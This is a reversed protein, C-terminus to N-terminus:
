KGSINSFLIELILVRIEKCFSLQSIFCLPLFYNLCLVVPHHCISCGPVDCRAQVQHLFLYFFYRLLRIMLFIPSTYGLTHGLFLFWIYCLSSTCWVRKSFSFHVQMLRLETTSSSTPVEWPDPSLKQSLVAGASIEQFASSHKINRVGRWYWYFVTDFYMDFIHEFKIPTM